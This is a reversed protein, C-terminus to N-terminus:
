APRRQFCTREHQKAGRETRFRRPCASCVWPKSALGEQREAEQAAFAARRQEWRLRVEDQIDADPRWRATVHATGVAAAADTLDDWGVDGGWAIQPGDDTALVVVAARVGGEITDTAALDALHNLLEAVAQRKEPQFTSPVSPDPLDPVLHLRRDPM